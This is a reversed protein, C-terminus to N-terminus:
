IGPLANPPERTQSTDMRWTPLAQLHQDSAWRAQVGPSGRATMWGGFREEIDAYRIDGPKGLKGAVDKLRSMDRYGVREFHRQQLHQKERMDSMSCTLQAFTAM